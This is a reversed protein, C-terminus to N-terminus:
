VYTDAFDLPQLLSLQHTWLFFIGCTIDASLFCVLSLVSGPCPLLLEAVSFTPFGRSSIAGQSKALSFWYRFVDQRRM